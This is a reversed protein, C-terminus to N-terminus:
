NIFSKTKNTIIHNYPWCIPVSLAGFQQGYTLGTILISEAWLPLNYSDAIRGILTVKRRCVSQVLRQVTDVVTQYQSQRDSSHFDICTTIDTKIEM